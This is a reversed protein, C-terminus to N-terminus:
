RLLKIVDNEGCSSRVLATCGKKNKLSRSAGAHLLAQVTATRGKQAAWMLATVGDTNPQDIRAGAQILALLTPPQDDQAALMLPSKGDTGTQNVKAGAQIVQLMATYGYRAASKLATM